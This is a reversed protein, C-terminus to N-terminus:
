EEPHIKLGAIQRVPEQKQNIAALVKKEDICLWERPVDDSKIVDFTWKDKIKVTGFTTTLKEQPAEIPAPAPPLPKAPPPEVGKKEAKKLEAQRKREVEALAAEHERQKRDAEEKLDRNYKAIKKEIMAALENCPKIVAGYKENTAKYRDYDPKGIQIREEDLVTAIRKATALSEAAFQLTDATVVLSATNQKLEEYKPLSRQYLTIEQEM